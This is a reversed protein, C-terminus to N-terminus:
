IDEPFFDSEYDLETKCEFDTGARPYRGAPENFHLVRRISRPLCGLPAGFRLLALALPRLWAKTPYRRQNWQVGTRLSKTFGGM